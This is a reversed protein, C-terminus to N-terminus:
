HLSLGIGARTSFLSDFSMWAHLWYPHVIRFTGEDSGIAGIICFGVVQTPGSSLM